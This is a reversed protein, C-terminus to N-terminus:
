KFCKERRAFNSERCKGCKWYGPLYDLSIGKSKSQRSCSGVTAVRLGQDVAIGRADPADGTEANM